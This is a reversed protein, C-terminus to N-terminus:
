PEPPLAVPVPAGAAALPWAALGIRESCPPFSRGTPRTLAFSTASVKSSPGSGSHVSRMAATRRCCSTGAAKKWVPSCTRRLGSTAASRCSWPKSSPLWVWVWASRSVIGVHRRSRSSERVSASIAPAVPTLGRSMRGGYEDVVAARVASWCSMRSPRARSPCRIASELKSESSQRRGPTSAITRFAVGGGPSPPTIRRCSPPPSRECVTAASSRRIGASLSRPYRKTERESTAPMGRLSSSSLADSDSCTCPRMTDAAIM